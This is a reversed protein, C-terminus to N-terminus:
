LVCANLPEIDAEIRKARIIKRGYGTAPIQCLYQSADSSRIFDTKWDLYINNGHTANIIM